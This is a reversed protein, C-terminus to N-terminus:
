PGAAWLARAQGNQYVAMAEVGICRGPKEILLMHHAM